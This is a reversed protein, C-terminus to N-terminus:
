SSTTPSRHATSEVILAEMAAFRDTWSRAIGIRSVLVRALAPDILELDLADNAISHMPLRLILHAGIGHIACWSTGSASRRLLNSGTIAAGRSPQM